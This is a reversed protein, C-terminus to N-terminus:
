DNAKLIAMINKNILGNLREMGWLGNDWGWKM